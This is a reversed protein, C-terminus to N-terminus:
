NISKKLKAKKGQESQTVSMEIWSQIDEDGESMFM